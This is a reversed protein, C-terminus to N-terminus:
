PEVHVGKWFAVHDKINSAADSPDPYYWAAGENVQDGVVLDYYSAVGKWPCTSQRDSDRFFERSISQPPFYINGELTEVSDSEALVQDQWVARSM